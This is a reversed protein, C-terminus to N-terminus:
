AVVGAPGLQDIAAKAVAIWAESQKHKDPDSRFTKWDPLIDANFAKWGVKACYAEYLMGAIKEIDCQM